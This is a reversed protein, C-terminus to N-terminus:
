YKFQFPKTAFDAAVASSVKASDVGASKNIQACVADSTITKKVLQHRHGPDLYLGERGSRFTSGSPTMAASPLKVGLM